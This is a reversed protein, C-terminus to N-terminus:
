KNTNMLLFKSKANRGNHNLLVVHMEDPPHTKALAKILNFAMVEAGAWLDGSLIQCIRLGM